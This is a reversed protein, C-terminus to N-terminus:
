RDTSKTLAAVRAAVSDILEFNPSACLPIEEGDVTHVVVVHDVKKFQGSIYADEDVTVRAIRERPITRAATKGRRFYRIDGKGRAIEFRPRTFLTYFLVIWAALILAGSMVKVFLPMTPRMWIVVTMGPGFLGCALLLFLQTGRSLRVILRDDSEVVEITNGSSVYGVLPAHRRLRMPFEMVSSM